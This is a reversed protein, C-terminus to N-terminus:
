NMTKRGFVTFATMVAACVAAAAFFVTYNYSDALAGFIVPGAAAGVCGFINIVTAASSPDMIRKADIPVQWGLVHAVGRVVFLLLIILAVTLIFFLRYVGTLVLSLALACASLIMIMYRNKACLWLCVASGAAGSLPVALTILVSLAPTLGFQETLLNPVWNAVAYYIMNVLLGSMGAVLLYGFVRGKGANGRESTVKERDQKECVSLARCFFIVTIMYIAPFIYFGLRWDAFKIFLASCFYDLSFSLAFAVGTYRNATPILEDPLYESIVLMCVPFVGSLLAGEAAFIAWIQRIDTCFPVLAFLVVSIPSFILLYKRVDIKGIIKVFLIQVLAYTVFSFSSAAGADSKSVGFHRVIEIIESTYVNKAALYTVYLLFVAFTLIRYKKM